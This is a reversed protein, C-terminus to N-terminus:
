TTKKDIECLANQVKQTTMRGQVKDNIVMVPSLACAGFCAVTELSCECDETTEGSKIGLRKELEALIRSGGRVHCATGKCVKIINRGTPVLKFQAYFTAVGFITIEPLHLFKAIQKIAAEPLYGYQEQVQQLIPILEDESGQYSSLIADIREDTAEKESILMQTDQVILTNAM